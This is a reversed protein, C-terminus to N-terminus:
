SHCEANGFGERWCNNIHIFHLMYELSLLLFLLTCSTWVISFKTFRQSFVLFFDQPLFISNRDNSACISWPLYVFFKYFWENLFFEIERKRIITGTLSQKFMEHLLFANTKRAVKRDSGNGMDRFAICAPIKVLSYIFHQSLSTQQLQM